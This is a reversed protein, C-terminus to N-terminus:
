AKNVGMKSKNSVVYYKGSEVQYSRGSVTIWGDAQPNIFASEINVLIDSADGSKMKYVGDEKSVTFNITYCAAKAADSLSEVEIVGQKHENLTSTFGDTSTLASESGHLTATYSGDTQTIEITGYENDEGETGFSFKDGVEFTLTKVGELEAVGVKSLSAQSVKGTITITKVSSKVEDQITEEQPAAVNDIVSNSGDDKSCSTALLIAAMVPLMKIFTRKM